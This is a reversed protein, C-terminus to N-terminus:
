DGQLRFEGLHFTTADTVGGQEYKDKSYELIELMATKYGEVYGRMFDPKLYDPFTDQLIM